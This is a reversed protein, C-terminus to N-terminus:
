SSSAKGYISMLRLYGVFSLVLGVSAFIGWFVMGDNILYELGYTGLLPAMPVIMGSISYYAGFYQGRRDEPSIKSIISTQVPALVNEGITLYFTNLLVFAFAGSLSYFFFSSSYIISGLALRSFDNWRALVMNTPIQFLIVVIGNLTYMLGIEQNSLHYGKSLFLTLTTGWQGAVFSILSLIIVVQLFRRDGRPFLEHKKEPAQLSPALRPKTEMIYRLFVFFVVLSGFAPVLFPWGFGFISLFGGLAPGIAFGVNAGIRNLSFANIRENEAVVDTVIVQDVIGELDALPFILIFLAFSLLGGIRLFATASFVFFLAASLPPLLLGMFRRGLRDVINGGYIGFPFTVVTGLFFLVGIIFFSIHYYDAYYIPVFVWVMSRGMTRVLQMTTIVAVPRNRMLGFSSRGQELFGM